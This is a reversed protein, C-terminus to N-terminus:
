VSRAQMGLAEGLVAVVRDVDFEAMGAHLPLSLARAYYADAGPLATAGYRARYYPQRNVPLYHVQTGIGNAKLRAMVTNRSIGAAEFDIRAVFLHWAPKGHGAPELPRVLPAHPALRTRYREVLRGRVAIFRDLKKLQSLGLACHLDSARYNFGLEALEHYWLNVRGEDDFAQARETFYAPDRTIGHARLRALKAALSEDRTTVVGGEGMAIAKVPHGSFTAMVSHRCAGIRDEPAPGASGGLAHCADEVFTIGEAAAVRMLGAMDCAQGNLHVPLAVRVCHSPYTARARAIADILHSPEMLGTEPAIDAFVVEAGVYRAANASAVFTLAPVIVVDGPGLGLALMALHLAATGSSCAIAFPAGIEKAFAREFAEVAPGTTLWEGRLVAAVADVDDDEILQRGYSLLTM